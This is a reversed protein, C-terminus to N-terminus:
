VTYYNAAKGEKFSFKADKQLNSKQSLICQIDEETQNNHKVEGRMMDELEEITRDLKM